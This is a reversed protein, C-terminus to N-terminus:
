THSEKYLLIEQYNLLMEEYKLTQPLVGEIQFYITHEM